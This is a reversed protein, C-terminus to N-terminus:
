LNLCSNRQWKAKTRKIKKKIFIKTFKTVTADKLLACQKVIVKDKNFDRITLDDDIFNGNKHRVTQTQIEGVGEGVYM